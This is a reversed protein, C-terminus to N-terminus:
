ISSFINTGETALSPLEKVTEIVTFSFALSVLTLFYNWGMQEKMLQQKV